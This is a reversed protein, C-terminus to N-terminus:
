LGLMDKMKFCGKRSKLWLAAKVAGDAFGDRSYARHSLKLEDVANSYVVEHYGKEDGERFSIISLDDPNKSEKNIWKDKRKLEWIMDDALTIATGSPSDKKETHHKELVQVDYDKFENMLKALHKNVSFLVNMGVSFNSAYFLSGNAKEVQSKVKGLQSYWGTTGVVIPVNAALCHDINELVVDPKSFDIAVDANRIEERVVSANSSRIKSVIEVRPYQKEVLDNIAQGM